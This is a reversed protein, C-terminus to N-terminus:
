AIVIVRYSQVIPSRTPDQAGMVCKLDYTDFDAISDLKFEYEFFEGVSSSRNREVDCNLRQWQQSEHDVGSGSLSTRVYWDVYSGSVSSLVCFLRVGNSIIQLSNKKTIYRAKANGGSPLLETNFSTLIAQGAGGVGTTDGSGRTITVIPTSTYGSGAEVVNLQSITNGSLVAVATAQVGGELDPPSITVTPIVTYGSGASTVAILDVMGSGDNSTLTEGPQNNIVHYYAHLNPTRNLDIVPSVNPNDTSLEISVKASKNGGMMAVENYTSAILSNQNVNVYPTNQVFELSKGSTYTTLNGGDYNGITTSLTNVTSSNGFNMINIQPIFGTMPKNVYVTFMPVVSAQLKAGVGTSSTVTVEPAGIYGTGSNTITVSKINGDIVNLTAAANSGVGTFVVADSSSYNIGESLVTIHAVIDATDLTGTATAATTVQFQLTKRDLVATVAHNANFESYPIGNFVADAYLDDTRTIVNFKSGVELGHDHSHTYTITTSENVTAFQSGIAALPPVVAAFDVTGTQTSFVAKNITFKIDEFQEATWTINNESRFLSGIYPNDFIRRGDEISSEGMRSTFVNYNNSNSRLVFCYDSDETLYIPPDFTFKTPESADDSVIIDAPNVVSVLNISRADMLSPYGNIMTRVECRVPIADDKTQFYVDISSLFMGGTVGYTFFSQALPDVNVPVGREVTTITTQVTQFIELTGTAAFTGRASGYVSGTVSLDSLNKTDSIIIEHNGTNFTGGPLSFQIVAQGITDTVLDTGLANGVLNCLHTVNTGSFFVYMKTNPRAEILTLILNQARIYQIAEQSVLDRSTVVRTDAM